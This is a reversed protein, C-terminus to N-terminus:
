PFFVVGCVGCHYLCDVVIFVTADVSDPDLPALVTQSFLVFFPVALQSVTDPVRVAELLTRFLLDTPEVESPVMVIFDCLLLEQLVM